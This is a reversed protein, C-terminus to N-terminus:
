ESFANSTLDIEDLFQNTQLASILFALGDDGFGCKSLRLRTLHPLANNGLTDALYSAGEDGIPNDFLDLDTLQSEHQIM